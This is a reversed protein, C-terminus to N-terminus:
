SFQGAGHLFVLPVSKANTPIQYAVYAHDGHLTQGDPSPHYPDYKAKAEIVSGGDSFSGQNEITIPNAGFAIPSIAAMFLGVKLTKKM